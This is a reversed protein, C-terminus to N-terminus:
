GAVRADGGAVEIAQGLAPSLHVSQGEVEVLLGSPGAAVVTVRCGPCLAHAALFRMSEAAVGVSVVEAETGVPLEALALTPPAPEGVASPIPRGQPGVRPDGLFVALREAADPPTAHELRCALADAETPTYGLRGALFTAWLRRTRLVQRAVREGPDTLEVGKYPSYRLLDRAALKHVKENASVVSVGLAEALAAVPLPLRSGEEAARAVTILYMQESETTDPLEPLGDIQGSM